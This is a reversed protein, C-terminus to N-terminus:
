ESFGMRPAKIFYKFFESYFFFNFYYFFIYIYINNRRLSLRRPSLSFTGM